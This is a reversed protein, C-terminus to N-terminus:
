IRQGGKEASRTSQTAGCSELSKSVDWGESVAFARVATRVRELYHPLGNVCDGIVEAALKARAEDCLSGEGAHQQWEDLMYGEAYIADLDVRLVRLARRVEGIVGKDLSEVERILSRAAEDSLKASMVM